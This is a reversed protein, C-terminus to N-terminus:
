KVGSHAANITDGSSAGLVHIKEGKSLISLLRPLFELAINKFAFTPGYGLHLSYLNETIHKVPTIDDHHWQDGYAADIISSLDEKTVGFDWAGLIARALDRYSMHTFIEIDPPSFHPFVTPCWLGSSHPQSTRIADQLSCTESSRSDFLPTHIQMDSTLFPLLFDYIRTADDDPSSGVPLDYTVEAYHEYYPKRYSFVEEITQFRPHEGNM